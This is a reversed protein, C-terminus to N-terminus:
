GLVTLPVHTKLPRHVTLAGLSFIPRFQPSVPRFEGTGPRKQAPLSGGRPRSKHIVRNSAPVLPFLLSRDHIKSTFRVALISATM